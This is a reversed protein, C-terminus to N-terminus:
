YKKNSLLTLPGGVPLVQSLVRLKVVIQGVKFM